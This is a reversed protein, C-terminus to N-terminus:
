LSKKREFYQKKELIKNTLLTDEICLNNNIGTAIKRGDSNIDRHFDSGVSNLLGKKLVIQNLWLSDEFKCDSQYTEIGDLGLQILYNIIQEIQEMPIGYAMPHALIAYGGASHIADIVKRVDLDYDEGYSFRNKFYYERLQEIQEKSINNEELYNLLIRDYWCYKDINIMQSQEDPFNKIKEKVERLLLLHRHKRKELLENIIKNFAVNKDDYCYGLIHLKIKKNLINIYSSFEVGNVGYMYEPLNEKFDSLSAISDHDTISLLGVNKRVQEIIVKPSYLGDSYNTHVHLDIYKKKM